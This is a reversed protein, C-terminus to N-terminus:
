PAAVMEPAVWHIPQAHATVEAVLAAREERINAIEALAIYGLMDAVVDEGADSGRMLRSAKDDLRVLIQERPSSTSFIRVPDLASNGYAKNKAILLERTNSLVEDLKEALRGVTFLRFLLTICVITTAQQMTTAASFPTVLRQMQPLDGSVRDHIRSLATDLDVVFADHDYSVATAQQPAPDPAATTVEDPQQKMMDNTQAIQDPDLVHHKRQHTSFLLEQWHALATLQPHAM